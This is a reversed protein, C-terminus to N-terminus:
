LKACYDLQSTAFAHIQISQDASDLYHSLPCILPLQYFSNRTEMGVQQEFLLASDMFVVSSKVMSSM